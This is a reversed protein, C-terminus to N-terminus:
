ISTPTTSRFDKRWWFSNNTRTRCTKCIPTIAFLTWRSETIIPQVWDGRYLNLVDVCELESMDRDCVSFMTKEDWLHMVGVARNYRDLRRM